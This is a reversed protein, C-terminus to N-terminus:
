IFGALTIKLGGLQSAVKVQWVPSPKPGPEVTLYSRALNQRSWCGPISWADYNLDMPPLNNEIVRTERSRSVNV